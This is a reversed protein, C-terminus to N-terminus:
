YKIIYHVGANKPRSETGGAPETSFGIQSAIPSGSVVYGGGADTAAVQPAIVHWHSRIEDGQYSGVNDGTNGGPLMAGRGTDEPDEKGDSRPGSVGRLFMGRLDPLNVTNDDTDDGNGWATLLVNKLAPYQLGTIEAGNCLLYGAVAEVVTGNDTVAGAYPLVTGVPVSSSSTSLQAWAGNTYFFYAEVDTDFVLMGETPSANGLTTRQATTMRPFLAGRTTSKVDLMANPDPASNDDNIGVNQASLAAFLFMSLCFCATRPCITNKM